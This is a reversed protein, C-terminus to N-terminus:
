GNQLETVHMKQINLRILSYLFVDQVHISFNIFQFHCQFQQSCKFYSNTKSFLWTTMPDTVSLIVASDKDFSGEM